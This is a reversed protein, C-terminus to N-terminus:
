YNIPLEHHITLERGKNLIQARTPPNTNFLFEEWSLNYNSANSRHSTTGWWTGYKPDHINIGRKLFQTQFKRPLVHHADATKGPNIGTLEILNKRFNGRTFSRFTQLKKEPLRALVAESLRFNSSAAVRSSQMLATGGLSGAMSLCNDALAATQASMGTKQLLQATATTQHTGSLATRMGTSCHDLGHAMILWGPISALGGSGGAVLAGFGAEALGGFAQMPGQVRPHILFEVVTQYSSTWLGSAEAHESVIRYDEETLLGYPDLLMLPSNHVYAYLNPGDAFGM